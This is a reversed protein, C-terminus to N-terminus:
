FWHFSPWSYNTLNALPLLPRQSSYRYSYCLVPLYVVCELLTQVVCPLSIQIFWTVSNKKASSSKVIGWKQNCFVFIFWLVCMLTLGSSASVYIPGPCPNLQFIFRIWHFQIVRQMQAIYAMECEAEVEGILYFFLMVRILIWGHVRVISLWHNNDPPCLSCANANLGVGGTLLLVTIYLHISSQPVVVEKWIIRSLLQSSTQCM